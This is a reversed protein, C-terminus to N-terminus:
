KKFKLEPTGRVGGVTFTRIVGPPLLTRGAASALDSGGVNQNGFKFGLDNIYVYENGRNAVSIVVGEKEPHYSVLEPKSTFGRGTVHITAGVRLVTKIGSQEQGSLSLPLERAFLIFSRSQSLAGGVWQVRVAQKKRAPVVAQPPFIVFSEDVPVAEESGDENVKREFIEFVVPLDSKRPNNLILTKGGVDTPLTLVSRMPTLTFGLAYQASLIFILPAICLRFLNRLMIKREDFM